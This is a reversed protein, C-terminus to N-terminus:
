NRLYAAARAELQESYRSDLGYRKKAGVITWQVLSVPAPQVNIEFEIIDRAVQRGGNAYDVVSQAGGGPDYFEIPTAVRRQSAGPVLPVETRFIKQDGLDFYYIVYKQWAPRGRNDVVFTGTADVASLFGITDGDPIPNISVSAVSSKELERMLKLSVGQVQQHLENKTQSKHYANLGMRFM